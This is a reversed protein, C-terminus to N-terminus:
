VLRLERINGGSKKGCPLHISQHSSLICLGRQELHNSLRNFFFEQTRDDLATLPEDLLWLPKPILFLRALALRRKQGASLRYALTHQQQLLQLNNLVSDKNETSMSPTSRGALHLALDLNERVSLGLKIGHLHGLYHLSQSYHDRCTGIADGYWDIDGCVPTSLGALLRLLTSKGSGNPGAVLLLEGPRVQFALSKFLTSHQRTCSLNTARLGQNRDAM